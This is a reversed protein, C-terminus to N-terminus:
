SIQDSEKLKITVTDGNKLNATDKICVPSIVEILSNDHHTRELLLISSNIEVKKSDTNCPNNKLDKKNKMTEPFLIAPYCKVWGFTRNEDRFGNIYISPYNIIERKTDM